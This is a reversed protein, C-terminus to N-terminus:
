PKRPYVSPRDDSEPLPETKWDVPPDMVTRAFEILAEDLSPGDDLFWDGYQEMLFWDGYQEMFEERSAVRMGLVEGDDALDYEIGHRERTPM